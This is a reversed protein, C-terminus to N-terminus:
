KEEEIEDKQHEYEPDFEIGKKPEWGPEFEIGSFLIGQKPEWGPEFEIGSFLIGPRYKRLKKKFVIRYGMTKLRANLMEVSRNKVKSNAKIDVDYPDEKYMQEVLRRGHPSLSYILLNIIVIDSGLHEMDGTEMDGFRIPTNSYLERYNKSAKSKTNQNKINTSSLSTASFKEEAVQKLRMMYQKGMILPRRTDVYRIEGNSGRLPVKLTTQQIDPFAKYLEDLLDIDMRDSIPENSVYICESDLISGIFLKFDDQKMRGTYEKMYEAEQPSVISLFKLIQSLAYEPNLNQTSRLNDLICMSIYNLSLEFIQGANERNTMTSSNKIMDAYMGNPLRPMMYTPLIKSVVGKGGYRDAVKDGIDLNRNEMIIFEVVLFSFKRKDIYEMTPNLEDKCQAYLKQLDYTLRYGQSVYPSVISVIAKCMEQRDIFYDYFQVDCPSSALNAPANCYINIDIVKGTLTTREDSMMLERLRAVSQTYIANEKDEKRFAFLIGNQIDEGIDPFTKYQYENGYLNIPIDNENIVKKVKKLLPANMKVSCDESIMVSDEMNNDNSMYVINLNAGNTKNGYEDFGTSRKLIDGPNIISGPMSLSDLRTNNILYGYVETSYKYAVREVVHLENTLTDGLILYYHHNPAKRFKPVKAIVQYQRDFYVISSSEQGFRNEYGTGIYPVEGRTLTLAHSQHVIDMIKRSGSNTFNYPINLGKGLMQEPTQLRSINSDVESLYDFNAM